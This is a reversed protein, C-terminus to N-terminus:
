CSCHVLLVLHLLPHNRVILRLVAIPLSRIQARNLGWDNSVDRPLSLSAFRSASKIYTRCTHQGFCANDCECALSVGYLIVAADDVADSM